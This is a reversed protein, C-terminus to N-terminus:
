RGGGQDRRKHKPGWSDPSIKHYWQSNSPSRDPGTYENYAFWILFGAVCLLCFVGFPDDMLGNM